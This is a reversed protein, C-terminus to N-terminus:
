KRPDSVIPFDAGSVGLTLYCSLAEVCSFSIALYVAAYGTDFPSDWPEDIFDAAGASLLVSLGAPWRCSLHLVTMGYIREYISQTHKEVISCVEEESKNLIAM